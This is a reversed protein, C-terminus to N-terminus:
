LHAVQPAVRHAQPRTRPAARDDTRVTGKPHPAAVLVVTESHVALAQEAQAAGHLVHFHWRPHPAVLRLVNDEPVLLCQHHGGGSLGDV